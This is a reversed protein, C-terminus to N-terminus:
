LPILDLGHWCWARSLRGDGRKRRNLGGRIHLRRDRGCKSLGVGSGRARWLSGELRPRQFKNGGSGRQPRVQQRLALLHGAGPAHLHGRQNARIGLLRDPLRQGVIQATLQGLGNLLHNLLWHASAAVELDHARQGTFFGFGVELRHATFELHLALFVLGVGVTRAAMKARLVPHAHMTNGHPRYHSESRLNQFDDWWRLGLRQHFIGIGNAANGACTGLLKVVLRKGQEAILQDTEAVRGVGRAEILLQLQGFGAKAGVVAARRAIRRINRGAGFHVRRLASLVHEEDAQTERVVGRFRNRFGTGVRQHVAHVLEVHVARVVRQAHVRRHRREHRDRMRLFPVRIHAALKLKQDVTALGRPERAKVIPIVVQVRQGEGRHPIKIKAPQGEHTRAAHPQLAKRGAHGRMLETVVEAQQVRIEPAGAVGGAWGIGVRRRRIEGEIGRTQHQPIVHVGRAVGLRRGLVWRAIHLIAIGKVRHAARPRADELEARVHLPLQVPQGLTVHPRDGLALGVSEVGEVRRQLGGSTEVRQADLFIELAGVPNIMAREPGGIGPLRTAHFQM